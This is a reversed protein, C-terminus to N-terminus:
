LGSPWLERVQGDKSLNREADASMEHAKLSLLQNILLGNEALIRNQLDSSAKIDSTSDIQDIFEEITEVTRVSQKSAQQATGGALAAATTARQRYGQNINKTEEGSLGESELHLSYVKLLGMLGQALDKKNEPLQGDSLRDLVWRSEFSLSRRHAKYTENNALLSMGRSGVMSEVQKFAHKIAQANQDIQQYDANLQKIVAVYGIIEQKLNIVDNVLIQGHSITSGFLCALSLLIASIRQHKIM